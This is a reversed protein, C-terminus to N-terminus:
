KLLRKDLSADVPSYFQKCWYSEWGHRDFAENTTYIQKSKLICAMYRVFWAVKYLSILYPSKEHLIIFIICYMSFCSISLQFSESTWPSTWYIIEMVRPFLLFWVSIQARRWCYQFKVSPAWCKCFFFM